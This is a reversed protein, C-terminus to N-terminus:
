WPIMFLIRACSLCVFMASVWNRPLETFDDARLQEDYVWQQSYRKLIAGLIFLTFSPALALFLAYGLEVEWAMASVM